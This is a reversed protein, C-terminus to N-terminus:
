WYLGTFVTLVLTIPAILISPIAFRTVKACTYKLCIVLDDREVIKERASAFVDIVQEVIVSKFQNTM